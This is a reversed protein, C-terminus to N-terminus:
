HGCGGCVMLVLVVKVEVLGGPWEVHRFPSPLLLLLSENRRSCPAAVPLDRSVSELSSVNAAATPTKYWILFYM